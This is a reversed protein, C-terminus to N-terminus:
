KGYCPFARSIRREVMRCRRERGSIRGDVEIRVDVNVLVPKSPQFVHVHEHHHLHVDGLVVTNGDGAVQISKNPSRTVTSSSSPIVVPSQESVIVKL